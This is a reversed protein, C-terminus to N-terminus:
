AQRGTLGAARALALQGRVVCDAPAQHAEFGLLAAAQEYRAALAPAGIITFQGAGEANAAIEAGILVGSLYDALESSPLRGTLGLTRAAFIRNLLSGPGGEQAGALVGEQFGHGTTTGETMLRGLITHAKLAAFVEGTMYTAFSRIAQGDAVAWKAHTGPLVFTRGTTAEGADGRSDAVAGLIQTEEGRMVDPRNGAEALLGPVLHVPGLQSTEIRTLHSAIDQPGAPCHVYPAEIWGQRSGIMGSMIIPLSDPASRWPATAAALYAEHGGPEISLIGGLAEIRHLVTGDSAALYARFSTTGWDVCILHAPMAM